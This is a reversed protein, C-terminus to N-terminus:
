HKEPSAAAVGYVKAIEMIEDHIANMLAEDKGTIDDGDSVNNILTMFMTAAGSIFALRTESIQIPLADPPLCKKAYIEWMAAIPKAM